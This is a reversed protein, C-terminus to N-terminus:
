RYPHSPSGPGPRRRSWRLTSWPGATRGSQSARRRRQPRRPPTVTATPTTTARGARRRPPRKRARAVRARAMRPSLTSKWHAHSLLVVDPQVIGRSTIPGRSRVSLRVMAMTSRPMTSRTISRIRLRRTEEQPRLMAATREESTAAAVEPTDATRTFSPSKATEAAMAPTPPMMYAEKWVVTELADVGYTLPSSHSAVTTSKPMRRGAAAANAPMAETMVGTMMWDPKWQHDQTGLQSEQFPM